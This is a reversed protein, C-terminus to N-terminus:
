EVGWEFPSIFAIAFAIRNGLERGTHATSEPYTNIALNSRTRDALVAAYIAEFLPVAIDQPNKNRPLVALGLMVYGYDTIFRGCPATGAMGSTIGERQSGGPDVVLIGPLRRIPLIKRLDEMSRVKMSQAVYSLTEPILAEVTATVDDLIPQRNYDTLAM